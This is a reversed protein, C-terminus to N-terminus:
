RVGRQALDATDEALLRLREWDDAVFPRSRRLSSLGREVLEVHEPPVASYPDIHTEDIMGVVAPTAPM